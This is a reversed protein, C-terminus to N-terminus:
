AEILSLVKEIAACYQNVTEQDGEYGWLPLKILEGHLKKANPFVRENTAPTLDVETWSRSRRHRRFLPENHMLKTSGSKNFEVAGEAILTALVQDRIGEPSRFALQYLGHDAVEFPHLLPRLLKSDGTSASLKRLNNQRRATIDHIKGLQNLGIAMSLTHPRHKLGMGTVAFAKYNHESAIEIKCRRNYHGFLLALDRYQETDTVLVGGEGATLAKQNLSFAAMDGFTGLRKGNWKGFHAHSCDELLILNRKKCFKVLATMDNANGWVHTALVARTNSTFNSELSEISLNGFEDSDCFILRYGEYSFPSVSAFFGYTCCLIEANIPLQAANCMAHLASTGSSFAIAHKRGIFSAFATEFEGIVGSADRDSLSRQAQLTIAELLDNSLHPWTYHPTAQKVSKEGGNIALQPNEFSYHCPAM